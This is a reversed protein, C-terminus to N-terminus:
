PSSPPTPPLRLVLGPHILNPDDGIAARNHAYIARWGADVASADAGDGLRTEAISWLCDGPRVVYEADAPPTPRPTSPVAPPPAPAPVFPTADRPELVMPGDRRPSTTSPVLADVADPTV